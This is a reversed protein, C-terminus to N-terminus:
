ALVPCRMAHAYVSLLACYWTTFSYPCDGPLVMRVTLILAPMAGYECVTGPGTYGYECVTGVHACCLARDRKHRTKPHQCNAVTVNGETTGSALGTSSTASGGRVIDAGGGFVIADGGYVAADGGFITADGGFIATDGGYVAADGGFITTDGGYIAADGGYITHVCVQDKAKREENQKRREAQGRAFETGFLAGSMAYSVRLVIDRWCWLHHRVYQMREPCPMACASPSVAEAERKEKEEQAIKFRKM